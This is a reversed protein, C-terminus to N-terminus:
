ETLLQKNTPLTKSKTSYQHCHTETNKAQQQLQTCYQSRFDVLTVPVHPQESANAKFKLQQRLSLSVQSAKPVYLFIMQKNQFNQIAQFFNQPFLYIKGEKQIIVPQPVAVNKAMNTRSSIKRRSLIQIAISNILSDLLNTTLNPKITM